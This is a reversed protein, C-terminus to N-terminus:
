ISGRRVRSMAKGQATKFARQRKTLGRNETALKERIRNESLYSERAIWIRAREEMDNELMARDTRLTLPLNLELQENYNYQSVSPFTVAMCRVCDMADDFVKEPRQKKVAKGAESRPYHYVGFEARLRSLGNDDKGPRVQWKNSNKDFYCEGQDDDVIIYISPRGKVLPVGAQLRRFPHPQHFYQPELYDRVQAIGSNYDTEWPEYQLDHEQSYTDRESLAEHSMLERMMRNQEYDPAQLLHIQRAVARVTSHPPATYMRYIFVAGSLDIQHTRTRTGRKATAFWMTINAHEGGSDSSGWDHARGLNWSDPIKFQRGGTLPDVRTSGEVERIFDSKTIVHYVENYSPYVKGPQSADYDIDLEQAVMEPSMKLKQGKYWRADRYPHNTWHFSRVPINGSWRLQAFYNLKGKPTSVFLCTNTSRSAATASNVDQEISAAEDFFIVTFRGSRGTEANATTGTVTSGNEPNIVSMHTLHKKPEFGQPMMWAPLMRIQMRIKEFITSPVNAKDVEDARYSTILAHFQSGEKPFLWYYVFMCLVLWTVGMDRSKDILGDSKMVYILEDIWTVSERQFEFLEFPFAYLLSNRPDLIWAYNDFWYLPDKRCKEKEITQAEESKMLQFLRNKRRAAEKAARNVINDVLWAESDLYDVKTLTKPDEPMERLLKKKANKLKETEAPIKAPADLCMDLAAFLGADNPAMSAYSKARHKLEKLKLKLLLTDVNHKPPEYTVDPKVDLDQFNM